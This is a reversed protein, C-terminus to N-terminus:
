GSSVQEQLCSLRNRTVQNRMAGVVRKKDAELSLVSLL